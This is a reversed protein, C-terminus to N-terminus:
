TTAKERLQRERHERGRRQQCVICQRWGRPDVYTNDASYPHGRPCTLISRYRAVLIAPANGRLTNVRPTVPELHDPNICCRVRCLHDIQLGDPIPGNLLEWVIRHVLRVGIKAYGAQSTPGLWVICGCFPVPMSLDALRQQVPPSRYVEHCEKSCFSREPNKVQSKARYFIGSCKQCTLIM